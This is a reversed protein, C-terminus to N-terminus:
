LLVRRIISHNEDLRISAPLRLIRINERKALGEYHGVHANERLQPIQATLADYGGVIDEFELVTPKANEVADKNEREGDIGKFLQILPTTPSKADKTKKNNIETQLEIRADLQGQNMKSCDHEYGLLKLMKISNLRVKEREENLKKELNLDEDPM